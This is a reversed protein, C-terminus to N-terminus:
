RKVCGVWAKIKWARNPNPALLWYRYSLLTVISAILVVGVPNHGKAV